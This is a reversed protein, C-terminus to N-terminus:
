RATGHEEIEDEEALVKQVFEDASVGHPLRIPPIVETDPWESEDPFVEIDEVNIKEPAGAPTYHVEGTVMIRRRLSDRARQFLLDPFLCEVKRDTTVDYVHFKNGKHVSITDLRGEITTVESSYVSSEEVVDKPRDMAINSIIPDFGPISFITRPAVRDNLVLTRIQTATRSSYKSADGEPDASFSRIEDYLPARLIKVVEKPAPRLPGTGKREALALDCTLPSNFTAHVIAIEYKKRIDKPLKNQHAKIRQAASQLKAILVPLPVRHEDSEIAIRIVYSPDNERANTTRGIHAENHQQRHEPEHMLM